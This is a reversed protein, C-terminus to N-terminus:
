VPLLDKLGCCRSASSRAAPPTRIRDRPRQRHANRVGGPNRGQDQGEGRHHLSLRLEHCLRRQAQLLLEREKDTLADLGASAQERASEPTLRKAQALKGALDPHANLVGLRETESAGRFIAASRMTCAAPATMRRASSSSTPASPSGHRISSFAASNRRRIGDHTWARRACRRRGTPITRAGIAPSTSAARWGSKRTRRSM